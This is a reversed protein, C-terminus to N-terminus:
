NEQDGCSSRLIITRHLLGCDVPQPKVAQLTTQDKQWSSDTGLVIGSRRRFELRCSRFPVSVLVRHTLSRQEIDATNDPRPDAASLTTVLCFSAGPFPRSTYVYVPKCLTHHAYSFYLARSSFTDWELLPTETAM